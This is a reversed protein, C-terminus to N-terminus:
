HYQPQTQFMLHLLNLDMKRAYTEAVTGKYGYISNLSTGFTYLSIEKVSKPIIVAKLNENLTFGMPM